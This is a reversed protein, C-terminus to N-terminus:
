IFSDIPFDFMLSKVRNKMDVVFEENMDSKLIEDIFGVIIQMQESEMGLRSVTNTGLRIGSGVFPSEDDFPLVNKNANIGCRELRIDAEKGTMGISKKVNVLVIHNDTGGTVIQYGREVLASALVGANDVILQQTARYEETMCEKFFVAKAAISGFDPTCQIGPFVTRNINKCQGETALDGALIVGGKPGGSKYTSCTVFHAHSIPSPHVGSVVLGNIHALDALLVAGCQHAIEGFRKFDITRPYASAGCIILDPKYALAAAEIADYDLLGSEKEVNYQKLNPFLMGSINAPSGHSLHGGQDLGMSLIKVEAPTRLKDRFLSIIVILNAMSGSLPQVWSKKANFLKCARQESL